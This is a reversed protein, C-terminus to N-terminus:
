WIGTLIVLVSVIKMYYRTKFHTMVDVMFILLKHKYPSNIILQLQAQPTLGHVSNLVRCVLETYGCWYEWLRELKLAKNLVSVPRRTLTYIIHM